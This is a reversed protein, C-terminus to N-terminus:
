AFGKEKLMESYYRTEIATQPLSCKELISLLEAHCNQVTKTDNTESLIEIEIFFGLHELFSLEIALNERSPIKYTKTTKRKTYAVTYGSDQMLKEFAPRNDIFFENEINCEFNNERVEKHKYTVCDMKGTESRIRFQVNCTSHKWYSDKKDTEGVFHAFSNLLLEVENPYEVHAKLEIEYMISAYCLFVKTAIFFM